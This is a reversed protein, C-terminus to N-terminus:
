AEGPEDGTLRWALPLVVAALIAKFADGLLFPFMGLALAEGLSVHLTFALWPVGFAYIVASGIVFALATRDPRRDLGRRALAGVIWAAVVFGALYGGTSGAAYDLGAHTGQFIPLGAIGLALYLVMSVAGRAPGLAAAAVLVGFTSGTIPVPTFPLPIVVQSSVAVVAVGAFLLLVDRLAVNPLRDALVPRAPRAPYHLATM